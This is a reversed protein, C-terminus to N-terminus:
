SAKLPHILSQVKTHAAVFAVIAAQKTAHASTVLAAYAVADAPAVFGNVKYTLDASQLSSQLAKEGDTLVRAGENALNVAIFRKTSDVIEVM